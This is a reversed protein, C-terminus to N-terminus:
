QNCEPHRAMESRSMVTCYGDSGATGTLSAATPKMQQPPAAPHGAEWAKRFEPFHESLLAIQTSNLPQGAFEVLLMAKCDDSTTGISLIGGSAPGAGGVGLGVVPCSYHNAGSASFPAPVLEPGQTYNGNGSGAGYNAANAASVSNASQRQGQAQGQQQKQHAVPQNVVGGDQAIPSLKGTTQADWAFAPGAAICAATTMVLLRKM